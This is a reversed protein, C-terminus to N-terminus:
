LSDQNKISLVDQVRVLTKQGAKYQFGIFM